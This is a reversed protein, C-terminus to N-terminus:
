EGDTEDTPFIEDLMEEVESDSATDVSLTGDETAEVGPGIKVGGLTTETAVPLTYGDGAEIIGYYQLSWEADAVIDADPIRESWCRVYGNGAYMARCVGARGAVKYSAKNPNAHVINSEDVGPIPM